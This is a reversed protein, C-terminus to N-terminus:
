TSPPNATPLVIELPNKVLLDGVKIAANASILRVTSLVKATTSIHRSPVTLISSVVAAASSYAASLGTATLQSSTCEIKLHAHWGGAAPANKMPGTPLFSCYTQTIC